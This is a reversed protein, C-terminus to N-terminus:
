LTNRRKKRRRLTGYGVCVATTTSVAILLPLSSHSSDGTVFNVVITPERHHSVEAESPPTPVVPAKLTFIGEYRYNEKTLGFKLYPSGNDAAVYESPIYCENGGLPLNKLTVCGKSDSEYIRGNNTVLVGSLPRSHEDVLHLTAEGYHDIHVVTEESGNYASDIAELLLLNREVNSYDNEKEFIITVDDDKYIENQENIKSRIFQKYRTLDYRFHYQRSAADYDYSLFDEQSDWYQLMDERLDFRAAIEHHNDYQLASLRLGQLCINDEATINLYLHGDDTKQLYYNQIVPATNDVNIKFSFHERRQPNGDTGVTSASLIYTYDGEPLTETFDAYQRLIARKSPETFSTNPAGYPSFYSSIDGFNQCFLLIGKRDYISITYDMVDRLVYIDPLLMCSYTYVEEPIHLYSQLSNKGFSLRTPLDNYGFVNIGATESFSSDGTEFSSVIALTSQGMPFFAQDNYINQPFIAGKSWDGCFGMFPLHLDVGEEATDTLYVFGDVYFGNTFIRSHATIYAEDLDLTVIVTETDYPQVTVTDVTREGVRFAVTAKSRIDEPLFSHVYRSTGKEDTATRYGDTQLLYDLTYTQPEGSLNRVQFAFEYRGEESEGMSVSPRDDGVALLAKTHTASDLDISGAGQLRPSYVLPQETDKYSLIDATSMMLQYIFENMRSPSSPEFTSRSNVYQRMIAYAGAACPSAMSTGSMVGFGQKDVSSFINDGPATIDPKLTLDAKAGFSSYEAITNAYYQPEEHMIQDSRISVSGKPHVEFYEKQASDVTYVFFDSLDNNQKLRSNKERRIVVVAYCNYQISRKVLTEIPLTSENVIVIKDTLKKGQFDSQLGIGNLYVYDVRDIEAEGFEEPPVNDRSPTALAEIEGYVEEFSLNAYIMQTPVRNEENFVMTYRTTYVADPVSAAVSFAGTMSSPSCITSYNIYSTPVEEVGMAYGNYADNGASAIVAVGSQILREYLQKGEYDHTLYEIAGYSCNIVDPSLKVADDLAAVIADDKLRGSKDSIKFLALQADYATGKFDYAGNGGNNGAAIGAVHTGHQSSDSRCVNDNEGYDYAYIIKGNYFIDEATYRDDIGFGVNEILGRMMAETYHLVPPEVSFVKHHVNFENDIVAIVQNNGTFGEEYASRVHISSKSAMGYTDYEKKEEPESSEEQSVESSEEPESEERSVESTEEPESEEWPVESNEDLSSQGEQTEQETYIFSSVTVSRIGQCQRIREIDSLSVKATFANTIASYSRSESFDITPFQAQLERRLTKQQQRVVAAAQQGETSLLFASLDPYEQTCDLYQTLLDPASLTIIVGAIEEVVATEQSFRATGDSPEASATVSLLGWLMAASLLLSLIRKM